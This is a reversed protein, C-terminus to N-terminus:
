GIDPRPFSTAVAKTSSTRCPSGSCSSSRSPWGVPRAEDRGDTRSNEMGTPRALQWGPRYGAGVRLLPPDSRLDFARRTRPRLQRDQHVRPFRQCRDGVSCCHLAVTDPSSRCTAAYCAPPHSFAQGNYSPAVNRPGASDPLVNRERPNAAGRGKEREASTPGAVVFSHLVTM